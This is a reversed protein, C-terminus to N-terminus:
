SVSGTNDTTPRGDGPAIQLPRAGTVSGGPSSPSPTESFPSPSRRVDGGSSSRRMASKQQVERVAPPAFTSPAAPKMVQVGVRAISSGVASNDLSSSKKTGFLRRKEKSSSFFISAKSPSSVPSEDGSQESVTRVKGGRIQISALPKEKIEKAKRSKSKREPLSMYGSPNASHEDYEDFFKRRVTRPSLKRSDISDQTKSKTDFTNKGPIHLQDGSSVSLPLNRSPPSLIQPINKNYEGGSSADPHMPVWVNEDASSDVSASKILIRKTSKNQNEDSDTNEIQSLRKCLKEMDQSTLPGTQPKSEASLPTRPSSQSPPIIFSPPPTPLKLRFAKDPSADRSNFASRTGSAYTHRSKHSTITETVEASKPELPPSAAPVQATQSRRLLPRARRVPAEEITQITKVHKVEVPKPSKSLVTDSSM